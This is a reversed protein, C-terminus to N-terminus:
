GSQLNTDDWSRPDELPELHTFVSALPIVKQIEKEISELLDHGQRISWNGPTIVHMSIFSHAGAQRTRLAHFRIEQNRYRDLIKSIEEIQSEPLSADMLGQISRQTLRISTWGIKSAVIMAIVPDLLQWGTISVAGVGALVGLSTWVDSMLHEGDAELTISNHERGRRMLLRAVYLNFVSAVLALTLGLSIQQIEEPNLMRQIATYVISIAAIGILIGEFLSSFYEAKGHGYAHEKDPPKAIEKLVRVAVLAATLNVISELADSLLGVSNTVSYAVAKIAM